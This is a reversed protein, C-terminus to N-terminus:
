RDPSRVRPCPHLARNPADDRAAHRSTERDHAAHYDVRRGVGSHQSLVLSGAPGAPNAPQRLFPWTTTRRPHSDPRSAKSCPSSPTASTSACSTTPIDQYHESFIFLPGFLSGFACGLRDRVAQETVPQGALRGPRRIAPTVCGRSLLSRHTLGARAGDPLGGPRLYPVSLGVHASGTTRASRRDDVRIRRHRSGQSATDAVSLSLRLNTGTARDTRRPMGHM